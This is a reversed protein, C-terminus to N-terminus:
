RGATKMRDLDAMVVTRGATAALARTPGLHHM